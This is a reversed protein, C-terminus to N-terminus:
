QAPPFTLKMLCLFVTQSLM